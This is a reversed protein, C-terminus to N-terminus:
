HTNNSENLHRFIVLMEKTNYHKKFYKFSFHKKLQIQYTCNLAQYTLVNEHCKESDTTKFITM